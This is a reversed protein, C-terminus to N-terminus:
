QIINDPKTYYEYVKDVPVKIDIEYQITTMITM